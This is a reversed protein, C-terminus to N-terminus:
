CKWKLFYFYYYFFLINILKLFDFNIFIISFIIKKNFSFFNKFCFLFFSYNFNYFNLFSNIVSIWFSKFIRKKNKRDIFSYSFAKIIAQKAIKYNNNRRNIYGLSFSLIKRHSKKSSIGRKIRVM